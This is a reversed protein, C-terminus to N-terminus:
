PVRLGRPRRTDARASDCRPSLARARKPGRGLPPCRPSPRRPLSGRWLFPFHPPSFPAHMHTCALPLPLGQAGRAAPLRPLGQAGRAAPLRVPAERPTPGHPPIGALTRARATRAARPGPGVAQTHPPPAHWPRVKELRAARIRRRRAAVRAQSFRRCRVGACVCARARAPRLQRKAAAGWLASCADRPGARSGLVGPGHGGPGACLRGPRCLGALPAPLTCPAGPRRTPETGAARRPDPAASPQLRLASAPPPCAPQLRLAPKHLAPPPCAPQLRLAPKHLAPPPCAPQLRLAPKHL